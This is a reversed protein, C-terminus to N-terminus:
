KLYAGLVKRVATLVDAVDGDSMGPFLPLTLLRAAADEAVPCLGRAYGRAAYYPHWYAPVYHFTVGINEARLAAYVGARDRTLRPLDLLVPFIHWAHRTDPVVQPLALGPQDKLAAVYREAIAERRALFRDLKGLQSLGLACQLDTLRYNYGLDVMEAWLRGDADRTAADTALGHNRFRRMREALAADDTTIVGGEGTTVHKVPHLSFITLGPGGGIRRGGVEAGLAHAADQILTLRRDRALREWADVDCVQGAFHVPMLAKLRHSRAAAARASAPDINFTVPDIDAFVPDAGLYRVVEATATFTYTTTLVQDGAGIGLAELALHMGSTASNCSVAQVGGGIFAAFDQEFRKSKPGTTVWGSRLSDVVETIEEEGIDPLAFPLFSQSSM